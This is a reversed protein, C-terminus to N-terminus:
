HMQSETFAQFLSSFASFASSSASSAVIELQERTEEKVKSESDLRCYIKTKTKTKLMFKRM